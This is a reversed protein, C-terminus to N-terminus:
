GRAFLDDVPTERMRVMVTESGRTGAAKVASFYHRTAAYDAAQPLTPM